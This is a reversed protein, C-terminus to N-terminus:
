LTSRLYGDSAGAAREARTEGARRPGLRTRAAVVRVKGASDELARVDEYARARGFLMAVQKGQGDGLEFMLSGGARLFPQAEKLVRQHVSLGYPGGDFAERPEHELLAARDRALRSTSIYPPNCVVVDVRGELGLGALPAFLDGQALNVRSALGLHELNRRAMETAPATLDCAWVQADPVLTAIACALNGCGCCMDIVRPPTGDPRRERLAAVAARGLLETEARPVLVGGGVHLEIGMFHARGLELAGVIDVGTKSM